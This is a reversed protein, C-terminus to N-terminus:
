TNVIRSAHLRNVNHYCYVSVGSFKETGTCAQLIVADSKLKINTLCSHNQSVIRCHAFFVRPTNFTHLTQVFTKIFGLKSM